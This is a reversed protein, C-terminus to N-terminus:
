GGDKVRKFTLCSGPPCGPHWDGTMDASLIKGGETPTVVLIAGPKTYIFIKGANVVWTFEVTKGALIWIGKGNEQLDLDIYDKGGFPEVSKYTGAFQSRSEGCGGLVLGVLILGLVAGLKLIDKKM